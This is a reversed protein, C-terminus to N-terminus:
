PEITALAKDILEAKVRVEEETIQSFDVDRLTLNVPELKEASVLPATPTTVSQTTATPLHSSSPKPAADAISPSTPQPAPSPEQAPAPRAAPPLMPEGAVLFPAPARYVLVHSGM